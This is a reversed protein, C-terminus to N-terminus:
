GAANSSPQGESWFYRAVRKGSEVKIMESEIPYKVGDFKGHKLDWCRAGLRAVGFEKLSDLFTLRRGKRFEALLVSCQSDRTDAGRDFNFDFQFLEQSM